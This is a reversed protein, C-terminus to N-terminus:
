WARWSQRSVFLGHGRTSECTVGIVRSWCTFAGHHWSKGYPLNVYSPRQTGPNYLIGGSCTVTGKGTASLEFGHWDVGSGDPRMCRDQLTHAYDAHAIDCLLNRPAPGGGAPHVGPVFLCKINGSPSRIGPLRTVALAFGTSALALVCVAPVVALRRPV